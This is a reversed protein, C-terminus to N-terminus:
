FFRVTHLVYLGFFLLYFVFFFCYQVVVNNNLIDLLIVYYGINVLSRYYIGQLSSRLFLKSPQWKKCMVNISYLLSYLSWICFISFEFYCVLLKIFYSHKKDFTRSVSYCHELELARPNSEWMHSLAWM